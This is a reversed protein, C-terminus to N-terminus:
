DEGPHMESPPGSQAHLFSEVEKRRPPDAGAKTCALAAVAAAFRLTQALDPDPLRVLANRSTIGRESLGALLGASFSDGAGVTDVVPVNFAPVRQLPPDSRARAEGHGGKAEGRVKGFFDHRNGFASYLARVVDEPQPLRAIPSKQNSLM